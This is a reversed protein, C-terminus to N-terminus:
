YTLAIPGTSATFTTPPTIAAPTNFVWTFNAANTDGFPQTRLKATTGNTAVGLYYLGPGKAAYTATFPVRQFTATTGVTVSSDLASTALVAGGSDFLFVVVKDTGGVSGILYSIGTLTENTPIFVESVWIKTAIGATDTGTTTAAPVFGAAYNHTGSTASTQVIGATSTFVGGSDIKTLITDSSNRVELADVSQGAALKIVLPKDLPSLAKILLARLGTPKAQAFLLSAALLIGLAAGSVKFRTTM